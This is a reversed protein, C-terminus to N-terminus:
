SLICTLMQFSINSLHCPHMAWEGAKGCPSLLPHSLYSERRSVVRLDDTRSEPKEALQRESHRNVWTTYTLSFLCKESFRSYM